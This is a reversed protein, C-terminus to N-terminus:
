RGYKTCGLVPHIGGSVTSQNANRSLRACADISKPPEDVTLYQLPHPVNLRRYVLAHSPTRTCAPCHRRLLCRDNEIMEYGHTETSFSDDHMIARCHSNISVVHFVFDGQFNQPGILFAIVAGIGAGRATFKLTNKKYFFNLATHARAFPM